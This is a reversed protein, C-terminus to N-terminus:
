TQERRIGPRHAIEQTSNGTEASMVEPDDTFSLMGRGGVTSDAVGTFVVIGTTEIIM